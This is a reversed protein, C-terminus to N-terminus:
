LLLIVETRVLTLVGNNLKENFKGQEYEISHERIVPAILRLSRPLPNLRAVM